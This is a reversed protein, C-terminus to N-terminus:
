GSPYRTACIHAKVKRWRENRDEVKIVQDRLKSGWTQQVGM